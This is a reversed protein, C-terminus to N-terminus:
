ALAFGKITVRQKVFVVNKNAPADTVIKHSAYAHMSNFDFIKFACAFVFPKITVRQAVM